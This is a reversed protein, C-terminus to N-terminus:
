ETYTITIEVEERTLDWRRRVIADGVAADGGDKSEAGHPYLGDLVAKMINDGDPVTRKLTGHMADKDAQKLHKKKHTKGIKWYANIEILTTKAARPIKHRGGCRIALEDCWARYMVVCHRRKWRDARTQRPKPMPKGPVTITVRHTILKSAM